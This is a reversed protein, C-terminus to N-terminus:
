GMPSSHDLGQQPNNPCSPPRTSPNEVWAIQKIEYASNEFSVNCGCSCQEVVSETDVDSEDQSNTSVANNMDVYFKTTSDDYRAIQLDCAIEQTNMNMVCTTLTDGDNASIYGTISSPLPDYPYDTYFETDQSNTNDNHIIIGIYGHAYYSKDVNITIPQSFTTDPRTNWSPQSFTTDPQTNWRQATANNNNYDPLLSLTVLCVLVAIQPLAQVQFFKM